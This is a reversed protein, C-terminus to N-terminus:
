DLPPIRLMQGPYIKDPHNLMPKNAEFIGPYKNGDGYHASAIKWLTDGSVVTYTSAAFAPAFTSLCLILALLAILKKKM